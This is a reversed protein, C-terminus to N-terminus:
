ILMRVVLLLHVPPMSYDIAWLYVSQDLQHRAPKFTLNTTDHIQRTKDIHNLKIKLSPRTSNKSGLFGKKRIGVQHFEVGNISVSAQVYTYPSNILHDQRDAALATQFDQSQHRITDWDKPDITIKVDLIHDSPFLDDIRLVKNTEDEAYVQITLFTPIFWSILKKVLINM